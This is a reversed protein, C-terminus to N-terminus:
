IPSKSIQQIPSNIFELLYYIRWNEIESIRKNKILTWQKELVVM